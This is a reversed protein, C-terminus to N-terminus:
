PKLEARRYKAVDGEEALNFPDWFGLPGTVGAMDEVYMEGARVVVDKGKKVLTAKTKPDLKSFEEQAAADGRRAAAIQTLAAKTLPSSPIGSQQLINQMANKSTFATRPCSMTMPSASALSIPQGM